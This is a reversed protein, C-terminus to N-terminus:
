FKLYSSIRSILKILDNQARVSEILNSIDPKTQIFGSIKEALDVADDERFRLNEPLLNQFAESSSLVPTGCALSELVVKDVSGTRSTHILLNHDKYIGPLEDHTKQGLFTITDQLDLKRVLERITTAYESDIDTVPSGVIDFSYDFHEDKLKKMALIMTELDKTPTIRGVSLLSFGLGEVRYGQQFLEMDIGHGVVTVKKSPLRFSEKSATFIKDVFKEAVRLWWTVSKHTYWLATRKRAIRWCWGFLAPYEPNMHVFIADYKLSLSYLIYYLSRRLMGYGREKGLSHVSVNSPLNYAGIELAIVHVKEFHKAFEEIWKCFFGLTPDDKDVKQTVILLTM